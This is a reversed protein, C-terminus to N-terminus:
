VWDVGAILEAHEFSLPEGSTMLRAGLTGTLGLVAVADPLREERKFFPFTVCDDGGVSGFPRGLGMSGVSMGGIVPWVLVEEDDDM